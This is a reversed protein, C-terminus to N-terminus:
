GDHPSGRPATSAPSASQPVFAPGIVFADRAVAHSCSSASSAASTPSIASPTASTRRPHAVAAQCRVRQWAPMRATSPTVAQSSEPEARASPPQAALVRVQRDPALGLVESARATLSASWPIIVLLRVGDSEMFRRGPAVPLGREGESPSLALSLPGDARRPEPGTFLDSLFLPSRMFGAATPCADRRNGSRKARSSGAV